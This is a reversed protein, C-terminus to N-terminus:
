YNNDNMNKKLINFIDEDFLDNTSKPFDIDILSKTYNSSEGFSTFNEGPKTDFGTAIVTIAIEDKMDENLAVGWIINADPHVKEAMLQASLEIDEIFIEPSATFNIIV